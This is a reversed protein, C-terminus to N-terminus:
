RKLTTFTLDQGFTTVPALPCSNELPSRGCANQDAVVRFHYITRSTLGSLPAAVNLNTFLVPVGLFGALTSPTSHPYTGSTGFEADTAYDFHFSTPRDQANVVGHVTASTATIDTAPSTTATPPTAVATAPLLLAVAV